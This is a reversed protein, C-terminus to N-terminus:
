MAVVTQRQTGLWDVSLEVVDGAKLYTEPTMGMGVGPPTGTSIIDGPLLTMFRSIYSLAFTPSFIMTSTNGTQRGEGNVSLTMDLNMVDGVEDPTALYPGFPAFIDHSKGKVWQGCQDKQFARESVDNLVGYGAICDAAVSEDVYKARKCIVLALEVEWDLKESGRPLEIPDFPGSLATSAKTFLLPEAPIEAHTEKAHDSYNLGLCIIKSPRAVPSGLRTAKDIRPADSGNEATWEALRALGNNTFFSEDYDSFGASVDIWDGNSAIWGPKEQGSEGFRILKM